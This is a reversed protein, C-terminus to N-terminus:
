SRAKEAEVELRVMKVHVQGNSDLPHASVYGKVIDYIFDHQLGDPVREIYPLWISQVWSALGGTGLQVM